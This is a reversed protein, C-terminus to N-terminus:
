SCIVVLLLHTQQHFGFEGLNYLYSMTVITLPIEINITFM